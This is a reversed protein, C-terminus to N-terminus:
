RAVPAESELAWASNVVLTSLLSPTLHPLTMSMTPTHSCLLLQEWRRWRRWLLLKM